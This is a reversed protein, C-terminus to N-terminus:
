AGVEVGPIELAWGDMTLTLQEVDDEPAAYVFWSSLPEDNDTRADKNTLWDQTGEGTIVSYRKLHERDLLEPFIFFYGNIASLTMGDEPEALHPTFDVRLTMTTGNDDLVLSRVVVDVTGRDRPLTVVVPEATVEPSAEPTASADSGTSATVPASPEPESEPATCAALGLVAAVSLAGVTALARPHLSTRMGRM